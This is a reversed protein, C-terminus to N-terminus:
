NPLIWKVFTNIAKHLMCGIGIILAMAIVINVPFVFQEAWKCIAYNILYIELTSSGVVTSAKIWFKHKRKKLWSELSIMWIFCTIGFALTAAQTLFQIYSFWSTSVILIKGVFYIVLSLATAGFLLTSKHNAKREIYQIRKRLGVGCLMVGFYFIYKFFNAGEVSWKSLDLCLFYCVFYIIITIVGPIYLKNSFYKIVVWIVGYSVLIASIFWFSSYPFLLTTLVTEKTLVIEKLFILLLSISWLAPYIRKICHIMWKDWREKVHSSLCFGSALFFLSNGLAGGISFAAVPYLSDFHSNTILLAAFAKIVYIFQFM